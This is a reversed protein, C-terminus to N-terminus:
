EETQEGADAAGPDEVLHLAEAGEDSITFTIQRHAGSEGESLFLNVRGAWEWCGDSGEEDGFCLRYTDVTGATQLDYLKKYAAKTYNAGFEMKQTDELGPIYRKKKDSLTTVEVQETEGGLQPYKTIDCLKEFKGEANKKMLFTLNNLMAIANPDTM